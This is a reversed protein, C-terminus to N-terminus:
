NSFQRPPHRTESVPSHPAYCTVRSRFSPRSSSKCLEALASGSTWFALAPLLVRMVVLWFPGLFIDEFAAYFMSISAWRFLLFSLIGCRYPLTSRAIKNSPSPCGTLAPTCSIPSKSVDHPATIALKVESCQSKGPCVEAQAAEVQGRRGVTLVGNWHANIKKKKLLLLFPWLIEYVRKVHKFINNETQIM